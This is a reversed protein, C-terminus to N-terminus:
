LQRRCLVVGACSTLPASPEPVTRGPQLYVVLLVSREMPMPPEERSLYLIAPASSRLTAGCHSGENSSARYRKSLTEYSRRLPCLPGSRSRRPRPRGAGCIGRERVLKIAQVKFERNFKRRRM